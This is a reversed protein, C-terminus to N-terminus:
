DLKILECRHNLKPRQLGTCEDGGSMVLILGGRCEMGFSLANVFTVVFFAACARDSTRVVLWAFYQLKSWWIM